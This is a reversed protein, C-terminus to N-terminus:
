YRCSRLYVPRYSTKEEGDPALATMVVTVVATTGTQLQKCTPVRFSTYVSSGYQGTSAYRRGILLGYTGYGRRLEFEVDVNRDCNYTPECDYDRYSAYGGVSISGSYSFYLTSTLYAFFSTFASSAPRDALPRQAERLPAAVAQAAMVSSATVAIVVAFAVM